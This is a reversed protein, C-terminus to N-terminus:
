ARLELAGAPAAEVTGVWWHEVGRNDLAATAAKVHDPPVAALLGGSTQPDHALTVLEALVGDNVTLADAVFRRNHAAGGTEVGAVTLDLAGPLIPLNGADFAFRVGSARAM